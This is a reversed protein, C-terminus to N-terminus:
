DEQERRVETHVTTAGKKMSAVSAQSWREASHPLESLWSDIPLGYVSIKVEHDNTNVTIAVHSCTSSVTLKVINDKSQLLLPDFYQWPFWYLFIRVQHPFGAVEIVENM